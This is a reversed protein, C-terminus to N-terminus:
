MDKFEGSSNLLLINPNEKEFESPERERDEKGWEGVCSMVNPEKEKANEERQADSKAFKEFMNAYIQKENKIQQKLIRNCDTQKVKAQYNNPNIKLCDAFDKSALEPEKLALLALGRRFLAKENQSDLQLAKNADAKAEFNEDLKLNCISMNLYAALLLAKRKEGIDGETDTEESELYSPIKKYFKNAYTYNRKMFYKTGKEKLIICQIKEPTDMQWLEKSKEFSKLTVVYEVTADPPISFELSGEEGFAFLPDIALKSSEQEKFQKLAIDIGSIINDEFGEGINFTADRDEFIRGKYSGTLHIEVRAGDNPTIFGKGPTLIEMRKVGNQESTLEEAEWDIMEVDFQLTAYPPILPPSGSAGYAYEPSCTIVAQEGKKMTAIGVDWAKIVQGKGLDFKFPGDRDRSTDFKTGNLLTGTYHVAVKCGQPPLATGCGEKLIRKMIGGDKKPCIDFNAM